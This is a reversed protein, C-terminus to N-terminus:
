GKKLVRTTGQEWSIVMNIDLKAGTVKLTVNQLGSSRPQLLGDEQLGIHKTSLPKLKWKM